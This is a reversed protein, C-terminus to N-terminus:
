TMKVAARTIIYTRCIQPPWQSLERVKHRRDFALVVTLVTSFMKYIMLIGAKIEAQIDHKRVAVVTDTTSNRGM